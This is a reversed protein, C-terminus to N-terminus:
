QLKFYIPLTYKVRVKEGGLEGPIWNPMSKIANISIEDFLGGLGRVVNIETISGNKEIVFQVYVKGQVGTSKLSDSYIINKGLYAYLNELGGPFEPSKDNFCVIIGEDIDIEVDELDVISDKNERVVITGKKSEQSFGNLSFLFLVVFLISKLTLKVLM